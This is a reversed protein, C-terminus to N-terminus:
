AALQQISLPRRVRSGQWGNSLDRKLWEYGSYKQVPESSVQRVHKTMPTYTTTYSVQEDRSATATNRWRELQSAERVTMSARAVAFFPRRNQPFSSTNDEFQLITLIYSIVHPPFQRRHSVSELLHGIRICDEITAYSRVRSLLGAM